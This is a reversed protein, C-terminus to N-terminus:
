VQQHDTNIMPTDISQNGIIVSICKFFSEFLFRVINATKTIKNITAIDAESVNKSTLFKVGFFLSHGSCHFGDGVLRPNNRQGVNKKSKM